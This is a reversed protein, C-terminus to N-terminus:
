KGWRTFPGLINVQCGSQLDFDSSLNALVVDEEKAVEGLIDVVQTVRVLEAGVSDVRVERLDELLDLLACEPVRVVKPRENRRHAVV